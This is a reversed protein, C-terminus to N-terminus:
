TLITSGDRQYRTQEGIYLVAGDCPSNTGEVYKMRVYKDTGSLDKADVEIVDLYGTTSPAGGSFGSTTARAAATQVDTSVPVQAYKFVIATATFGSATGTCSEVTFTHAPNTGGATPGRQVVFLGRAHEAMSIVDTASTGAFRDDSAVKATTFHFSDLLSPHM